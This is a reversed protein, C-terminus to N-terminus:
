KPQREFHFNLMVSQNDSLNTTDIITIYSKPINIKKNDFMRIFGSVNPSRLDTLPYNYIQEDDMVSFTILLGSLGAASVLAAQSPSVSQDTVCLAQIGYVAVNDLESNYVLNIKKQAAITGLQVEFNYSRKTIPQFMIITKFFPRVM